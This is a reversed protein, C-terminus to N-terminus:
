VLSAHFYIMVECRRVNEVEAVINGREATHLDDVPQARICGSADVAERARRRGARRGAGRRSNATLRRDCRRRCCRCCNRRCRCRRCRRSRGRRGRRRLRRCARVDNCGNGPRRPPLHLTVPRSGPQQSRRLRRADAVQEDSGVLTHAPEANDDEVLQDRTPSRGGRRRDSRPTHTNAAAVGVM